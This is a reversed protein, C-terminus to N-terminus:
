LNGKNSPDAPYRRALLNRWFESAERTGRLSLLGEVDIEGDLYAGMAESPVDIGRALAVRAAWSTVKNRGAEMQVVEVRNLGCREALAEQTINDLAERLAKVRWATTSPPPITSVPRITGLALM